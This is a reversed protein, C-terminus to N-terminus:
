WTRRSHLYNTTIMTNDRRLRELTPPSPPRPVPPPALGVLAAPPGPRAPAAPHRHRAPAAAARPRHGPGARCGHRLRRRAPTARRGCRRPLCLRAPLDRDLPALVDLPHGARRGARRGAQRTSSRGIAWRGACRTIVQEASTAMDTTVLALLKGRETVAILRVPRSRFVGM